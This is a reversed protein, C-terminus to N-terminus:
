DATGGPRDPRYLGTRYPVPQFKGANGAYKWLNVGGRLRGVRGRLAREAIVPVAGHLRRGAMAASKGAAGHPKVSAGAHLLLCIGKRRGPSRRQEHHHELQTSDGKPHGKKADARNVLVTGSHAEFWRPKQLADMKDRSNESGGHTGNERQLLQNFKSAARRMNEYKDKMQKRSKPVDSPFKDNLAKTVDEYGGENKEARGLIRGKVKVDNMLMILHETEGDTWCTKQKRAPKKQSPSPPSTDLFTAVVTRPAPPCPCPQLCANASPLPPPQREKPLSQRKTKLAKPAGSPRGQRRTPLPATRGAPQAAM